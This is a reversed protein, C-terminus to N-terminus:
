ISEYLHGLEEVTESGDAEEDTGLWPFYYKLVTKIAKSQSPNLYLIPNKPYENLDNESTENKTNKTKM